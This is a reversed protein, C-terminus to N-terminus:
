AEAMAMEEQSLTMPKKPTKMLFVAFAGILVVVAAFVDIQSYAMVQAKLEILAVVTAHQAPTVANIISNKALALANGETLSNLLTGFIAIGFAGGINRVLALVSSAVGIESRPVSSAIISTRQAMASGMFLAM